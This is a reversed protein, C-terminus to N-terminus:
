ADFLRPPNWATAEAIRELYARHKPGLKQGRKSTEDYKALKKKAEDVLYKTAELDIFIALLIADYVSMEIAAAAVPDNIMSRGGSRGGGATKKTRVAASPLVDLTPLVTDGVLFVRSRKVTQRLWSPVLDAKRLFRVARGSTEFFVPPRAIPTGGRPPLGLAFTSLIRRDQALSVCAEFFSFVYARTSSTSFIAAELDESFTGDVAGSSELLRRKFSSDGADDLMNVLKAIHSPLKNKVAGDLVFSPSCSPTFLMVQGGEGLEKELVALNSRRMKKVFDERHRGGKIVLENVDCQMTTAQAHEDANDVNVIDDGGPWLNEVRTSFKSKGSGLYCGAVKKAKVLMSRPMAGLAADDDRYVVARLEGTSRLTASLSDTQSWFEKMKNVVDVDTNAMLGRGIDLVVGPAREDRISARIVSVYPKIRRVKDANVGFAYAQAEVARELCTLVYRLVRGPNSVNANPWASVPWPRAYLLPCAFTTILVQLLQSLDRIASKKVRRAYNSAAVIVGQSLSPAPAPPPRRPPAAPSPAARKTLRDPQRREM